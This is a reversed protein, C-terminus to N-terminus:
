TFMKALYNQQFQFHFERAISIICYLFINERILGLIAQQALFKVMKFVKITNFDSFFIKGKAASM